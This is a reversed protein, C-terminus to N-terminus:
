FHFRIGVSAAFGSLNIRGGQVIFDGRPDVIGSDDASVNGWCKDITGDRDFDGTRPCTQPQGWNNEDSICAQYQAPPLGPDCVTPNLAAMWDRAAPNVFQGQPRDYPDCGIGQYNVDECLTNPGEGKNVFYRTTGDDRYVEESFIVLNIQDEGNLDLELYEDAFIYRADFVLSFKDNLFYEAGAALHWEYSNNAEVRLANRFPVKGAPALIQDQDKILNKDFENAIGRIHMDHIRQNLDAVDQSVDMDAFIYGFGVAVYPNLPSDKRFRAVASLSVPIETIEGADTPIDLERDKFATLIAANDSICQGPISSNDCPFHDRLFTDIPGVSGKFYSVDLQLSLWSTLGYGGDLDLKFTEEIATERALLDDPRPDCYTNSANGVCSQEENPDGTFPVGDDGLPGIIITANSRIDDTTSLYGLRGGFYWKGKVDEAHAPTAAALAVFTFALGLLLSRRLIQMTHDGRM